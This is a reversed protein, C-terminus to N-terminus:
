QYRTEQNNQQWAPPSPEQSIGVLACSCCDGVGFGEEGIDVSGWVGFGDDFWSGVEGADWCTGPLSPVTLIPTPLVDDLSMMM